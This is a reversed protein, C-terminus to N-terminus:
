LIVISGAGQDCHTGNGSECLMGFLFLELAFDGSGTLIGVEGEHRRYFEVPQATGVPPHIGLNGGTRRQAVAGELIIIVESSLFGGIISHEEVELNRSKADLSTGFIHASKGFQTDTLLTYAQGTYAEPELM